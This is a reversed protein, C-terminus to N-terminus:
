RPPGSRRPRPTLWDRYTQFHHLVFGAFAPHGRYAEEVAALERELDAEALRAFTVKDPKAPSVEVGIVLPKRVRAAYAMERRVLAIMGDPGAARNRYDMVAAFDYVDLVHEHAPKDVGNWEVEIGDLWFPIAPGMPITSGAERKLQMLARGMDLFQGLLELKDARWQDLMHPEIDLNIGTFRRAPPAGANYDLVHRLMTLAEPRREPLLYEETHLHWSGLLAYADIGADRLRGILAHYLQPRETLLNRHGYADAYLYVRDIRRQGLFAVARGAAAPDELMAYTEPEWVWIARSAGRAPAAATALVAALLCLAPFRTM